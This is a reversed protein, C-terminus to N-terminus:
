VVSRRVPDLFDLGSEEFRQELAELGETKKFEVESKTIPLLWLFRVRGGRTELWELKPGFPYPLSLLGHDCTCHSDPFWPRGINVTHGVGLPAGTRHYHAVATLLEVLTEESKRSLAFLELRETDTEESM